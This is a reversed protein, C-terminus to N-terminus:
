CKSNISSFFYPLSIVPPQFYETLLFLILVKIFYSLCVKKRRDNEQCIICKSYYDAVVLTKRKPQEQEQEM